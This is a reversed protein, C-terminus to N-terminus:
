PAPPEGSPPVAVKAGTLAGGCYQCHAMGLRNEGGCNQCKVVKWGLRVLQALGEFQFVRRWYTPWASRHKQLKVIASGAIYIAAGAWLLYSAKQPLPAQQGAFAKVVEAFGIFFLLAGVLHSVGQAFYALQSQGPRSLRAFSLHARLVFLLLLNSLRLLEGIWRSPDFAYPSLGFRDAGSLADSRLALIVVVLAGTWLLLVRSFEAPKSLPGGAPLATPSPLPRSDAM